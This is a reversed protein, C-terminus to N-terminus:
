AADDHVRVPVPRSGGAPQRAALERVRAQDRGDLIAGWVLLALAAVTILTVATGVLFLGVHSM